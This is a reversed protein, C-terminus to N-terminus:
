YDKGKKGAPFKNRQIRRNIKRTIKVAYPRKPNKKFSGM